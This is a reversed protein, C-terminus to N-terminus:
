LDPACAVEVMGSIETSMMVLRDIPQEGLGALHLAEHIVAVAADETSIYAFNRCVWVSRAGTQTYTLNEAIRSNAAPNRGCIEIERLYSDVPFYLSAKLTELGNAGLRTFLGGCAEIEGVREVALEFGAKLKEKVPAPMSKHIWPTVPAELRPTRDAAVSVSACRAGGEIVDGAWLGSVALLFLAVSAL